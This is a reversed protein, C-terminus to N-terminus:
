SALDAVLDEESPQRAQDEEELVRALVEFPHKDSAKAMRRSIRDFIEGNSSAAYLMHSDVINRVTGFLRSDVNYYCLASYKQGRIHEPLAYRTLAWAATDPLNIAGSIDEVDERDNQRLLFFSKANGFIVPRLRSHKLQAYQQTVSIVWCSFKRLQAYAEALIRDGGPMNLFRAVEEFIWRKRISRPMSVMLQRVYGAVLFGAAEKLDSAQEPIYGLELHIVKRDKLQMTSVGDFLGGAAGGDRSWRALQTALYQIEGDSHHDMPDYKLMAVLASHTPFEEPKFYRFAMNRVNLETDPSRLYQVVEDKSFKTLYEEKISPDDAGVREFESWAEIFASGQPMVRRYAEIAMAERAVDELRDMNRKSWETYVDWYLQNIYEGIVGIRIKNREEESSTGALKLLLTSATALQSVSLPAGQTDFYNFTIDADPTVVIPECGYMKTYIGYSLGEEIIATLDYYCETQALLDIMSVSKGSGTMGVMVAHQPTDGAFTRIGVLNGEDGDYIAEPTELFGGFTGDIPMLGALYSNESYLDWERYPGIYGPFSEYWLNWNQREHNIQHYLYGGNALATCLAIRDENLLMLNENWLRFVTLVEYPRTLGNGLNRMKDERAEIETEHQTKGRSYEGRLRRLAAEEKKIEKEPDIGRITQSVIFNMRMASLVDTMSKPHAEAPWRRVVVMSQYCGDLKWFIGHEPDKATVGDSFLCNQLITDRYDFQGPVEGVNRAFMTPNFFRRLYHMHEEDGLPRVVSDPVVGEMTMMIERLYKEQGKLFSESHNRITDVRRTLFVRLRERRLNGAEMADRYRYSREYRIFRTFPEEARKETERDYLDLVDRYDSDTTLQIQATIESKIELLWTALAERRANLADESLSHPSPLLVECGKGIATSRSRSPSWVILGHALFGDPCSPM